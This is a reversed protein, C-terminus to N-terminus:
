QPPPAPSPAPPPPRYRLLAAIAVDRATDAQGEAILTRVLTIAVDPALDGPGQAGIANLALMLAEGRRGHAGLAHRLRSLVSAAPRRGPWNTQMAITAETRAAEPMVEGIVAYLGLALAAYSQDPTQAVLEQALEDLGRQAEAQRVADPAILNLTVQFRALLPKDSAAAPDLLGAWRSAGAANGTLMLARGMLDAMTRMAPQPTLAALASQQLVAAVGLMNKAEATTLAEYLLAARADPAAKAIAQRLLAQGALFPLTQVQAHETAFQDATFPQADALAILDQPSVAGTGVVREAAKLRDEPSNDSSRLALLLGPTGLQVGADFSVPLGARHLLFLHLATPAEIDGPDKAVNSQVDDLLTDFAEDDINQAAMVSQTLALAADDGSMAYCYARLEIWFPESSDLRTATTDDCLHEQQGAFLLAEAQVRAFAPDNKVDALAALAAADNLLGADLLEHIRVTMFAQDATGFPPAAKTLVIRRALARIPAITTPLPLRAMLLEADARSSGSWLDSGLGGNTSDLTGTPPGETEGLTSVTIGSAGPHGMIGPAAPVEAPGQPAPMSETTDPAPQAPQTGAGPM